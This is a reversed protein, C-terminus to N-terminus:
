ITLSCSFTVNSKKPFVKRHHILKVTPHHIIHKAVKIHSEWALGEESGSGEEAVQNRPEQHKESAPILYYVLSFPIQNLIFWALYFWVFHLITILENVLVFLNLKPWALALADWVLYIQNRGPLVLGFQICETQAFGFTTQAQSLM